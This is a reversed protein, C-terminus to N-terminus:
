LLTITDPIQTLSVSLSLFSPSLPPLLFLSLFLSFFLFISYFSLYRCRLYLFSSSSLFLLSLPPVQSSRFFPFSLSFSNYSPFSCRSFSLSFKHSLVSFLCLFLSCPRFFPSHLSHYVSSLLCLIISPLCAPLHFLSM